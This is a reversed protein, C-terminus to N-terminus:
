LVNDIMGIIGMMRGSEKGDRRYSHLFSPNCVTCFENTEIQEAPVSFSLLLSRNFKKLDLFFKDDNKRVLFDTDFYAAVDKGVEYCCSGASFGIHAFINKPKTGYKESMEELTKLLIKKSSGQWGSHVAAVVHNARDYLFIPVCDAVSIALFINNKDTILADCDPYIGPKDAIKITDSHIQRPFAINEQKVKVADFFIKRNRNVNEESDNVSFSMNLFYPAPSVGGTKSSIFFKIESFESFLTSTGLIM